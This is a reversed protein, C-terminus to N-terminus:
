YAISFQTWIIKQDIQKLCTPAHVNKDISHTVTHEVLGSPEKRVQVETRDKEIQNGDAWQGNIFSLLSFM